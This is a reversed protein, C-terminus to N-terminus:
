MRQMRYRIFGAYSDGAPVTLVHAAKQLATDHTKMAKAHLNLMDTSGTQNELCVFGKEKEMTYFVLHTFEPSTELYLTMYQNFYQIQASEHPHIDTFVHDLELPKIPASIRLDPSIATIPLLNGTPLLESDAEMVSEAPLIVKTEDLGSLTSFYPHLAFGFPMTDSSHNEVSYRIEIADVTLVYELILTSEYPFYVFLPHNKTISFWTKVSASDKSVRPEEYSWSQDDVLGHILPYNGSKRTIGKLSVHRGEFEYEKDRIRNPYPWLVFCGTWERDELLATDTHIIDHGNYRFQFLNSGLEPAIQVETSGAKLHIVTSQLTKDYTSMGAFQQNINTM